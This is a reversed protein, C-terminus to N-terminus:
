CSEKKQLVTWEALMKYQKVDTVLGDVYSFGEFNSQDLCFVMMYKSSVTGTAKEIEPHKSKSKAGGHSAGVTAQGEICYEPLKIVFDVLAFNTVSPMGYDYDRLGAIDKIDRIFVKREVKVNM